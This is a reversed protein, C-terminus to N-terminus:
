KSRRRTSTSLVAAVLEGHASVADDLVSQAPRWPPDPPEPLDRFEAKLREFQKSRGARKRVKSYVANGAETFSFDNDVVALLGAAALRNLGGVLEDDMPVAHNIWDAASIVYELSTVGGEQQGVAVALFMWADVESNNM